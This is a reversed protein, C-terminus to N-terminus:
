DLKLDNDILKLLANTQQQAELYLIRKKENLSQFVGLLGKFPLSKLYNDDFSGITVVRSIVHDKLNAVGIQDHEKIDQYVGNYLEGLGKVFNVDGFNTIDGSNIISQFTHNNPRFITQTLIGSIYYGLSDGSINTGSSYAILREIKFSITDLRKLDNQIVGQDKILDGRLSVLYKQHLVNSNKNQQWNNLAFAISVGIFVVVLDILKNKWSIERKEKKM